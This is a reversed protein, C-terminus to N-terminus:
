EEKDKVKIDLNFIENRVNEQFWSKENEPLFKSLNLLTNQRWEKNNLNENDQPEKIRELYAKGLLKLFKDRNSKKELAVKKELLKKEKSLKQLKQELKTM